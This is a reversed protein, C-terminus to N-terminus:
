AGAKEGGRALPSLRDLALNLELVNVRPEGLVGLQRGETHAAVLRRVETESLRRERAVRPVQFEAAAPTINPDLGSASSTVLDAPVPQGPNEARAAALAATVQDVLKRSTPGLNTGGSSTPDYGTGAASPRSHFTGAGSFAQGMLSSGVVKGGRVILSGNAQHPFLLQAMGTVALPYVLGLLVTLVVTVLFAPVIQKGMDNM